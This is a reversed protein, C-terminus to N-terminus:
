NGVKKNIFTRMCIFPHSKLQLLEAKIFNFELFFKNFTINEYNKKIIHQLRSPLVICVFCINLIIINKQQYTFVIIALVFCIVVISNTCYMILIFQYLQLFFNSDLCQQCVIEKRITFITVYKARVTNSLAKQEGLLRGSWIIIIFYQGPVVCSFFVRVRFTFTKKNLNICEQSILSLILM